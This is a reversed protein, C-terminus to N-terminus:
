KQNISDNEDQVEVTFENHARSLYLKQAHYLFESYQNYVYVNSFCIERNPSNDSYSDVKGYYTNQTVLDRLVVVDNEDFIHEWVPQNDIRGTLKLRNAIRFVWNKYIAKTFLGAFVLSIIIAVIVNPTPISTDTSSILRVVDIPSVISNQFFYDIIYFLCDTLLYSIFSFVVIKLLEFYYHDEKRVSLLSFLFTGLIGPLLFLFFKQLFEFFDM